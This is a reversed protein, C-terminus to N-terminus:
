KGGVIEEVAFAVIDKAEGEGLTGKFPPMGGGDTVQKEAGSQSKAPPM